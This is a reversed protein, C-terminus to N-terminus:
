TEKRRRWNVEFGIAWKGVIRWWSLRVFGVQLKNPAPRCLGFRNLTLEVDLVM